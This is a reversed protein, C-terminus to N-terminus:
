AAPRRPGRRRSRRGETGRGPSASRGPGRCSLGRVASPPEPTRRLDHRGSRPPARSPTTTCRADPNGADPPLTETQSRSRQTTDLFFTSGLRWGDDPLAYTRNALARTEPEPRGQPCPCRASPECLRSAGPGSLLGRGGPSPNPHPSRIMAAGEGGAGRGPPSPLIRPDEGSGPSPRAAHLGRAGTRPSFTPTKPGCAAEVEHPALTLGAMLGAMFMGVGLWPPGRSPKPATIDRPALFDFHSVVRGPERKVHALANAGAM